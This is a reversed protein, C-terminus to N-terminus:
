RALRDFFRFADKAADAVIMLHECRDYERYSSGPRSALEAGLRSASGRLMMIEQKGVALFVPISGLAAPLSGGAAPAFLAIASPPVALVERSLAMGGGMSHGMVFVKRPRMGREERLWALCAAVASASSRPSMLIWGRREAEERCIGAGYSEFFMNESGGAGHLAIVVPADNKAHKPVKVRFRSGAYDVAPIEEVADWGSRAIREAKALWDAAPVETEYNGASFHQLASTIGQAKPADKLRSIRGSFDDVVQVPVTRDQGNSTLTIQHTGESKPATWDILIDKNDELTYSKSDFKFQTPPIPYARGVQIRVAQGPSAVRPDFRVILADLGSAERASLAATALDLSRCAEGTRGSFFATVAGSVADVAKERLAPKTVSTWAKDLRKLREALDARTPLIPTTSTQAVLLAALLM